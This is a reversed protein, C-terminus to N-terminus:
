SKLIDEIELMTDVYFDADLNPNKFAVFWTGARSSALQDYESDGIFLIQNPKVSLETQIKILQDPSPKPKEVDLATVVMDFEGELSFTELVALMTNTRNTAVAIAYGNQKLNSLLDKLGPEIKMYKIFKEYGIGKMLDYVQDLSKMEPFLYKLAQNVTFMHVKIFQEDTLEPKGFHKLITNYYIRNGDATDFMVGDCDFVVAKIDKTKM